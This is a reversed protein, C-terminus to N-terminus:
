DAEQERKPGAGQRESRTQCEIAKSGEGLANIGLHDHQKDRGAREHEGDGCLHERDDQAAAHGIAGGRSRAGDAGPLDM